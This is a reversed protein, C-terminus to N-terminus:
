LCGYRKLWLVTNICPIYIVGAVSINIKDPLYKCYVEGTRKIFGKTGDLPDILWFCKGAKGTGIRLLVAKKLFYLNDPKKLHKAIIAQATKDALTLPSRDSKM